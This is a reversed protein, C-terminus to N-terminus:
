RFHSGRRAATRELAQNSTKDHNRLTGESAVSAVDRAAREEEAVRRSEGIRPYVM